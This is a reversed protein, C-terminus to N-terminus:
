AALSIRDDLVERTAVMEPVVPALTRQLVPRVLYTMTPHWFETLTHADGHARMCSYVASCRAEASASVRAASSQSTLGMLPVRVAAANKSAGIMTGITKATPARIRRCNGNRPGGGIGSADTIKMFM